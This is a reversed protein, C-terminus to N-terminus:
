NNFFELVTFVVGIVTGLIAVTVQLKKKKNMNQEEQIKKAKNELLIQQLDPLIMNLSHITPLIETVIKEDGAVHKNVDNAYMKVDSRLEFIDEKLKDVKDDLKEVRLELKQFQKEM